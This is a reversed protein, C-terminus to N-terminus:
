VYFRIGGLSLFQGVALIVALMFHIAQEVACIQVLPSDVKARGPPVDSFIARRKLAPYFPLPFLGRLSPRALKVFVAGEHGKSIEL